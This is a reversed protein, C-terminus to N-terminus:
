KRKKFSVVRFHINGEGSAKRYESVAAIIASVLEGGDSEDEKEPLANQVPETASNQKKNEPITYFFIKLISLFGWLLALIFFVTAFGFLSRSLGFSFAKSVSDFPVSFDETQLMIFMDAM